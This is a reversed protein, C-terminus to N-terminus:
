REPYVAGRRSLDDNVMISQLMEAGRAEYRAAATDDKLFLAAHRLCFQRLLHSYRSTMFNTTNSVSLAAPKKYYVLRFTQAGDAACDFNILEDFIAYWRPEGVNLAYDADVTQKLLLGDADTLLVDSKYKDRLSIPDLFDAPLSATSAADSLSVTASAQMERVRMRTYLDNEADLLVDAAPVNPNNIWNKISGETTRDAVLTTYTMAM